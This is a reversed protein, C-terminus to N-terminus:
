RQSRRLGAKADCEVAPLSRRPSQCIPPMTVAIDPRGISMISPPAPEKYPNFPPFLAKTRGLQASPAFPLVAVLLMGAPYKKLGSAKTRGTTRAPWNIGLEFLVAIAFAVPVSKPFTPRLTRRPGPWTLTSKETILRKGNRSDLFM